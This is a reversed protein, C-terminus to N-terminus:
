DPHFDNPTCGAELAVAIRNIAISEGREALWAEQLRYAEPEQAGPCYWHGAVQQRHHVLEHLFVSVDQPSEPSWPRILYITATDPDYYGRPTVGVRAARGSLSRAEYATVLRVRAAAQRRPYPGHDDLWTDLIAGLGRMSTAARWAPDPDSGPSLTAHSGVAGVPGGLVALMLLPAALWLGARSLITM